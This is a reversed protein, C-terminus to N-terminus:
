TGSIVPPRDPLEHSFVDGDTLQLKMDLGPDRQRVGGTLQIQGLWQGEWTGIELLFNFWIIGM